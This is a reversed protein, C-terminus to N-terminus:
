LVMGAAAEMWRIFLGEVPMPVLLGFKFAPILLSPAAVSTALAIRLKYRQSDNNKIKEWSSVCIFVLVAAVVLDIANAIGVSGRGLGGAAIGTLVFPWFTVSLLKDSDLYFPVIFAFLFVMSAVFFDTNPILGYVYALLYSIIVAFRIFPESKLVVVLSSLSTKAQRWGGDLVARRLLVLSLLILLSSVLIPLLAPSVYWVNEVGAYSDRMPFSFSEVLMAVALLLIVIATYFDSRRKKSLENASM